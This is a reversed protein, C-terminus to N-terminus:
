RRSIAAFFASSVSSARLRIDDREDELKKESWSMRLDPSPPPLIGAFGRALSM